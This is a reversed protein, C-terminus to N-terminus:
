PSPDPSAGFIGQNFYDAGDQIHSVNGPNNGFEEPNNIFSSFAKGPNKWANYAGGAIVAGETPLGAAAAAVGYNFSAAPRFAEVFDTKDPLPRQLDGWGGQQFAHYLQPYLLSAMSAGPGMVDALPNFVAEKLRDSFYGITKDPNYNEPVVYPKSTTPDIIYNESSNDRLYKARVATKTKESYALLDDDGFQGNAPVLDPM